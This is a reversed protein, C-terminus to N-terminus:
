AAYYLELLSDGISKRVRSYSTSQGQGIVAEPCNGLVIQVQDRGLTNRTSQEFCYHM